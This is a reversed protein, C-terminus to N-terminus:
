ALTTNRQTSILIKRRTRGSDGRRGGRWRRSAQEIAHRHRHRVARHLRLPLTMVSFHSLSSNDPAGSASNSKWVAKHPFCILNCIQPALVMPCFLVFHATWPFTFPGLATCFSHEIDLTGPAGNCLHVRRKAANAADFMARDLAFVDVVADTPLLPATQLESNNKGKGERVYEVGPPLALLAPHGTAGVVTGVVVGGPPAAVVTGAVVAEGGM